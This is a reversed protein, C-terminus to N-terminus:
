QSAQPALYVLLPAAPSTRGIPPEAIGVVLGSHAVVVWVLTPDDMGYIEVYRPQVSDGEQVGNERMWGAVVRDETPFDIRASRTKRCEWVFTHIRVLCMNM